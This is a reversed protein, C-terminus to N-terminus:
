QKCTAIPPMLNRCQKPVDISSARVAYWLRFLRSSHDGSVGPPLFIDKYTLSANPQISVQNLEEAFQGDKSFMILCESKLADKPYTKARIYDAFDESTFNGVAYSGNKDQYTTSRLLEGNDDIEELHNRELCRKIEKSSGSSLESM